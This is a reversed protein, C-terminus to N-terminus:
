HGSSVWTGEATAPYASSGAAATLLHATLHDQRYLLCGVPPSPFSVCGLRLTKSGAQSICCVAGVAGGSRPFPKWSSDTGPRKQFSSIVKNVWLCSAGSQLSHRFALVSSSPSSDTRGEEWFVSPFSGVALVQNNPQASLLQCISGETGTCRM